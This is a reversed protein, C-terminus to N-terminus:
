CSAEAAFIAKRPCPKTVCAARVLRVLIASLDFRRNFLYQVQALYRHSYKAFGFSHYTGALATKLNGLVTNIALFHPSKASAAGGGTIHREHHIGLAQVAEFCALGDSVLTAPALLSQAAFEDISEKTFPRASFCAVIPAGAETTQVAAVFPVKNPSGRGPKGGHYEGGLYADDIEVRGTLKRSEERQRMVEMLKHKVLWATPYSVGLHRKLELASVNNKAQTILHMAVFWKPLALKSAEFITGAVLSCQYRCACCQFYLRSARRFESCQTQPEPCRPCAFGKPWRWARIVDECQPQTGYTNFFELMPLGHQFQVKNMAM